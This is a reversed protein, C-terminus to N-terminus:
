LITVPLFQSLKQDGRNCRNMEVYYHMRM